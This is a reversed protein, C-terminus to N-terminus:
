KVPIALTAPIDDSYLDQVWQEELIVAAGNPLASLDHVNQVAPGNVSAATFGVQRAIVHTADVVRVVTVRWGGTVHDISLHCNRTIGTTSAMTLVGGVTGNATLTTSVPQLRISAM